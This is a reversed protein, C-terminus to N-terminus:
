DIQLLADVPYRAGTILEYGDATVVVEDELQFGSRDLTLYPEICLVMGEELVTDAYRSVYPEEHLTLGLGHGVFNIPKLGLSTFKEHFVRYIEGTRMGPRILDLTVQRSEVLKAWIEKQSPSPDGVVATRAVDSLYGGLTAYIDVRIVDGPQLRRSTPGPNAHVSREGSGVVLRAVGDAGYELLLQYLVAALDMETMGAHVRSVAEYHAREALQGLRTLVQIEAPTKVARLRALLGAADQWRVRPLREGLRRYTAAPIYDMEIGVAGQALGLEFLVDALVDAPDETFENYGRVEDLGSESRAFSEEMDAVIQVSRGNLPVVCMVLRSRILTQSPVAFGATYTTNEPSMSVIADLGEARLAQRQKEVVQRSLERQM